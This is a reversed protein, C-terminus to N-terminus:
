LNLILANETRCILQLAVSINVSSLNMPVLWKLGAGIEKV